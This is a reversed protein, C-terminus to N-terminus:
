QKGLSVSELQTNSVFAGLALGLFRRRGWRSVASSSGPAGASSTSAGTTTVAQLVTSRWCTFVMFVDCIDTTKNFSFGCLNYIPFSMALPVWVQAAPGMWFIIEIAKLKQSIFPRLKKFFHQLLCNLSISTVFLFIETCFWDRRFIQKTSERSLNELNKSLDKIVNSVVGFKGYLKGAKNTLIGKSNTLKHGSNLALVLDVSDNKFVCSTTPRRRHVGVPLVPVLLVESVLVLQHQLLFSLQELFLQLLHFVAFSSSSSGGGGCWLLSSRGLFCRTALSCRWLMVASRWRFFHPRGSAFWGLRRRRRRM